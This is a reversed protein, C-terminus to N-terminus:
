SLRKIIQGFNEGVKKIFKVEGVSLSFAIDGVESAISSRPVPLSNQQHQLEQIFTEMADNAEKRTIEGEKIKEWLLEEQEQAAKNLQSINESFKNQAEGHNVLCCYGPQLEDKRFKELSYNKVLLSFDEDNQARLLIKKALAREESNATSLTLIQIEIQSPEM